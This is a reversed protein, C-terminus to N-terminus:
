DNKDKGHRHQMGRGKGPGRRPGQGRGAGPGPGLGRGRQMRMFINSLKQRQDPRCIGKMHAFHMMTQKKLSGHLLGFETALREFKATDPDSSALEELMENRVQHMERRINKAEEDFDAKLRGYQRLQDDTFNLESKMFGMLEFENVRPTPEAGFNIKSFIFSSLASINIIVLIIIGWKKLQMKTFYDIKM